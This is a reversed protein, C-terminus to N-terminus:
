PAAAPGPAPRAGVQVAVEFSQRSGGGFGDRVEIEVPHTGADGAGPTWVVEGSEADIAMGEPAARLSFRFRTDGDPDAVEPTYRFTGTPGIGPPRSVIEPPANGIVLAASELSPGHSRGDFPTARVRVEDARGVRSKPLVDRGDEVVEGNVIWEYRVTTDNRDPDVVDARVRWHPEPGRLTTMQVTEIDLATVRPPRNGPRFRATRPESGATGDTAVVSVEVAQGMASGPVRIRSGEAIIRRGGARWTFHLTVPDGDPDTATAVAEV